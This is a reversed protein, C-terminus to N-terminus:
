IDEALHTMGILDQSEETQLNHDEFEPQGFIKAKVVDYTFRSSDFIYWADGLNGIEELEYMLCAAGLSIFFKPAIILAAATAGLAIFPVILASKPSDKVFEPKYYDEKNITINLEKIYVNSEPRKAM